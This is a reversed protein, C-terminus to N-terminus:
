KPAEETTIQHWVLASEGKETGWTKNRGIVDGIASDCDVLSVLCPSYKPTGHKDSFRWLTNGPHFETYTEWGAWQTTDYKDDGGCWWSDAEWLHFQWRIRDDKTMAVKGFGWDCTPTSNDKIEPHSMKTWSGTNIQQFTYGYFDERGSCDKSFSNIQFVSYRVDHKKLPNFLPVDGRNVYQIDVSVASHDSACRDTEKGAIIVPDIKVS